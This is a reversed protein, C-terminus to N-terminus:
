CRADASHPRYESSSARGSSAYWAIGHPGEVTIHKCFAITSASISSTMELPEDRGDHFSSLAHWHDSQAVRHRATSGQEFRWYHAFRDVGGGVQYARGPRDAHRTTGAIEINCPLM